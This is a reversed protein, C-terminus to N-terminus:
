LNKKIRQTLLNDVSRSVHLGSGLGLPRNYTVPSKSDIHIDIFPVKSPAMDREVARSDENRVDLTAVLESSAKLNSAQVLTMILSIVNLGLMIFLCVYFVGNGESEHTTAWPQPGAGRLHEVGSM